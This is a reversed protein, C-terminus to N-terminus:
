RILALIDRSDVDDINVGLAELKWRWTEVADPKGLYCSRLRKGERWRYYVYSGVPEKVLTREMMGTEPNLVMRVHPRWVPRIEFTGEGLRKLLGLHKQALMIQAVLEEIGPDDRVAAQALRIAAQALHLRLVERRLALGQVQDQRKRRSRRPLPNILLSSAAETQEIARAIEEAFADLAQILELRGSEMASGSWENM